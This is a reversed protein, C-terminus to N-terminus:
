NLYYIRHYHSELSKHHQKYEYWIGYIYIYIPIGKSDLYSVLNYAIFIIPNVVRLGFGVFIRKVSIIYFRYTRITILKM